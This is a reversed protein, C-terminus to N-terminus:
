ARIAPDGPSTKKIPLHTRHGVFTVPNNTVMKRRFGVRLRSQFSCHPDYYGQTTQTSVTSLRMSAAPIIFKSRTAVLYVIRGGQDFKGM